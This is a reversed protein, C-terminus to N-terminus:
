YFWNDLIDNFVKEIGSINKTIFSESIAEIKSLTIDKKITKYGSKTAVLEYTGVPLILEYEGDEDTEIMPINGGSASTFITFKGTNNNLKNVLITVGSVAVETNERKLIVKGREIGTILGIKKDKTENGSQDTATALIDESTDNEIVMNGEWLGSSINKSLKINKNKVKINVAKTDKEASLVFKLSSGTYYSINGDEDPMLDLGDKIIFFSGIRPPTRDIEIIRSIENSVNGSIDVARVYVTYLGDVLDVPNKIIFSAQKQLYGSTITGKYWASREFEKELKISYEFYEIGSSADNGSGSGSITVKKNSTDKKVVFTSINPATRDIYFSTIASVPTVSDTATIRLEYNNSEPLKTTDWNYTGKTPANKLISKFSEGVRRYSIEIDKIEDKDLDIIDWSLVANNSLGRFPKPNIFNIVPPNNYILSINTIDSKNGVEDEAVFKLVETGFDSLTVANFRFDGILSARTTYTQDNITLIVTASPESIGTLSIQIGDRKIDEDDESSILANNRFNKVIPSKPAINDVFITHSGYSTFDRSDIIRWSITKPGEKLKNFTVSFKQESKPIVNDFEIDEWSEGRDRSYSITKLSVTDSLEAPIIAKGSVTVSSDKTTTRRGNEFRFYASSKKITVLIPDSLVRSNGDSVTARIMYDGDNIDSSDYNLSGGLVDKAIIKWNNTSSKSNYDALPILEFTYLLTDLNQDTARTIIDIDGSLVSKNIPKIISVTPATNYKIEISESESLTGFVDRATISIYNLGKNKVKELKIKNFSFNGKSDPKITSSITGNISLTVETDPRTTGSLDILDSNTVIKNLATTINPKPPPNVGVSFSGGSIIERGLNGALDMGEVIINATGDYGSLVTYTGEYKDKEGNLELLIPKGGMQTISVKPAKQLDESSEISIKVDGSKVMYPDVKVKFFPATFDVSFYDSVAEGVIGSNDMASIIIRYLNGPILDKVSWEYQGEVKLDKVILNKYDPNIPTRLDANWDFTKDTYYISVPSDGLGYNIKEEPKGTDNEDTVKYDITTSTSFFSNSKPSFINVIPAHAVTSKRPEISTTPIRIVNFVAEMIFGPANLCNAYSTCADQNVQDLNSFSLISYNGASLNQGLLSLVNYTPRRAPLNTVVYIQENTVTNYLFTHQNDDTVIIPDGVYYTSKDTSITAYSIPVNFIFFSIFLGIFFIPSIHILNIKKNKM